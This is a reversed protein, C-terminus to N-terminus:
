LRNAQYYFPAAHTLEGNQLFSSPQFFKNAGRKRTLVRVTLPVDNNTLLLANKIDQDTFGQLIDTYITRRNALNNYKNEDVETVATTEKLIDNPEQLSRAKTKRRWRIVASIVFLIYTPIGQHYCITKVVPNRNLAFETLIECNCLEWIYGDPDAFFYQTVIPKSKFDAPATIRASIMSLSQRVEINFSRLKALVEDFDSTELAIHKVELSDAPPIVPIGKILHLEINGMTLWAGHRNFSPRRVQQLGLIDVYFYLSKGVDSVTLTVHNVKLILNGLVRREYLANWHLLENHQMNKVAVDSTVKQEARRHRRFTFWMSLCGLSFGILGSLINTKALNSVM